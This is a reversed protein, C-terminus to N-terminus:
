RRLYQLREPLPINNGFADEGYGHEALLRIDELLRRDGRFTVTLDAEIDIKGAAMLRAIEDVAYQALPEGADPKLDDLNLPREYVVIRHEEALRHLIRRVAEQNDAASATCKGELMRTVAAALRRRKAANIAENARFLELPTSADYEQDDLLMTLEGGYHQAIRSVLTSPRVHFGRYGPVPVEVTEIRAYRRLMTQCLTRGAELYRHAFRLVYEMLVELLATPNLLPKVLRQTDPSVHVLHREYYHCFLTGIELLHYVVSVHGRLVKLDPDLSEVNTDAVYTDYVCQLNHFEQQLHRLSGENVPDPVCASYERAACKQGAALPRSASALDLFHTALETVADEASDAERVGRDHPLFGAPLDEAFTNPAPADRPVELGRERALEVVRTAVLMLVDGAFVIAEGTAADFDGTVPLLRYGPKAHRLHLLKYCADAFLKASSVVERFPSWRRNSRAHYADLLEGAMSAELLIQGLLPRTLDGAGMQRLELHRALVLLKGTRRSLVRQFLDPEIRLLETERAAARDGADQVM